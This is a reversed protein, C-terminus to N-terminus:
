YFVDTASSFLNILQISLVSITIQNHNTEWHSIILLLGYSNRSRNEILSLYILGNISTLDLFFFVQTVQFFRNGLEFKENELISMM